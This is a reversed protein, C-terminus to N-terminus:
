NQTIKKSFDNKSFLFKWFLFQGSAKVSFFQRFQKEIVFFYQFTINWLCADKYFVNGPLELFSVESKFLEDCKSWVFNEENKADMENGIKYDDADLKTGLAHEQLKNDEENSQSEIKFRM